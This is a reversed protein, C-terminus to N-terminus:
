MKKALSISSSRNKGRYHNTSFCRPQHAQPHFLVFPHKGPPGIRVKPYYLESTSAQRKIGFLRLLFSIFRAWLKMKPTASTCMICKTAGKFAGKLSSRDTIDAQVIQSPSLGLQQLAKKGKRDSARILAVPEFTKSRILKKVVHFGVSGGAGTVVVRMPPAKVSMGRVIAAYLLLLLGHMM